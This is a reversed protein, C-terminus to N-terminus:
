GGKGLAEEKAYALSNEVCLTGYGWTYDLYVRIASRKAGLRLLGKLKEGYLFSDNGRVIGWEMLLAAGASVFPAAMSTGSVLSYYGGPSPALIDAGPAVLDPKDLCAGGRGSFGLSTGLSQRYAGVSIVKQATSPITLTLESDSKAFFTDKGVRETTPLWMDYAGSVIEKAVLDVEWYGEKMPSSSAVYITVEQVLSGHSLSGYLLSVAVDGSFFQVKQRDRYVFPSQVGSPLALAFAMNDVYNKYIHLSFSSLGSGLFFGIKEESYSKVVGSAHHGSAGENGTAVVITQKWLGSVDNLYQELLSEGRHSGENMGLSLNIVLPKKEERAFDMLFKVGKAVSITTLFGEGTEGLKVMAIEGKPAAASAIGAVATGHGLVDKPPINSFPSASKLALDITERDYFAGQRFNKPPNGAGNQDWICAIKTRGERDLFASHTFDIGSDLFGLIIGEGFLSADSDVSVGTFCASERASMDEFSMMKPLEMAIIEPKIELFELYNSELSLIAYGADLYCVEGGTKQLITELDGDYKVM